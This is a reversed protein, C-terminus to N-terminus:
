AVGYVIGDSLVDMPLELPEFVAYIQKLIM